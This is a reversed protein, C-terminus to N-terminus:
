SLQGRCIDSSFSPHLSPVIKAVFTPGLSRHTLGGLTRIPVSPCPHVTRAWNQVNQGWIKLLCRLCIDGVSIEHSLLTHLPILKDLCIKTKLVPTNGTHSGCLGNCYIRGCDVSKILSRHTVPLVLFHQPGIHWGLFLFINLVPTDDASFFFSLRARIVQRASLVFWGTSLSLRLLDCHPLQEVLYSM